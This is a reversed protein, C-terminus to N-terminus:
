SLASNPSRIENRTLVVLPIDRVTKAQYGEYNEARAIIRPWLRAKEEPTAKRATATFKQRRVELGVTPNALVNLYWQPHKPQGGNSAVIVWRDGDALAILPITRQKGSKRGRTTLMVIQLGAMTGGALHGRSGLYIARHVHTLLSVQFRLLM